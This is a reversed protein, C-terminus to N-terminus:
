EKFVAASEIETEGGFSYIFLGRWQDPKITYRLTYTEAEPKLQILGIRESGHFKRKLKNGTWDDTYLAASANLKANGSARIEVRIKRPEKSQGLPGKWNWILQSAQGSKHIVLVTRDGKKVAEANKLTWSKLQGKDNLEGFSGNSLFNKGAEQTQAAPAKEAAKEEACVAATLGALVAVFLLSSRKM